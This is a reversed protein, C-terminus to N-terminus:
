KAHDTAKLTTPLHQEAIAICRLVSRSLEAGHKAPYNWDYAPGDRDYVSWMPVGHDWTVRLRITDEEREIGIEGSNRPMFRWGPPLAAAEFRLLAVERALDVRTTLSVVATWKVAKDGINIAWGGDPTWVMELSDREPDFGRRATHNPVDPRMWSLLRQELDEPIAFAPRGSM